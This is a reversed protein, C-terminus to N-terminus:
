VGIMFVVWEGVVFGSGFVVDVIEGVGELGLWWFLM